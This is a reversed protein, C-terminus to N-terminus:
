SKRALFIRVAQEAAATLLERSNEMAENLTMPKNIISIVGDIGHDFLQEIGKGISGVLAIVPIGLKKASEAVGLATKGYVTQYDMQGEGTIVLDVGELKAAFDAAKLFLDIGRELQANFFVTLTGGIGGASGAGPLNHIMKGTESYILDAFHQLSDELKGVLEPNAGKQPAFVRAAGYEGILPNVVDSALIFTSEAVRSDFDEFLINDVEKLHVGGFAVEQGKQDPLRAGLAQLIGAGGDCTASGGLGILFDRYGEDLAAKILQGTGYSSSIGPDREAESLLFLGSASATDIVCTKGNGLVGYSATIKRFLPDSVEVEVTHGRTAKVLNNVTGEGGDSLPIICTEINNNVNLIGEEIAKAVNEASLSGKFSDPAIIIKM